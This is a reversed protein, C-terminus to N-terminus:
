GIRKGGLTLTTRRSDKPEGSPCTACPKASRGARRSPLFPRVVLGLAVLAAISVTWFQWDHWPIANM